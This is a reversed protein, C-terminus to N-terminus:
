DALWFDVEERVYLIKELFGPADVIEDPNETVLDRDPHYPMTGIGLTTSSSGKIFERRAIKNKV